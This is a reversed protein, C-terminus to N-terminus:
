ILTWLEVCLSDGGSTDWVGYIMTSDDRSTDWVTYIMEQLTGCM